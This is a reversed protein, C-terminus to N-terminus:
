KADKVECSIQKDKFQFDSSKLYTPGKVFSLILFDLIKFILFECFPFAFGIEINMEANIKQSRSEPHADSVM